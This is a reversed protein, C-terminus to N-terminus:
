PKNGQSLTCIAKTGVLETSFRRSEPYLYTIETVDWRSGIRVNKAKSKSCSLRQDVYRTGTKLDRLTVKSNSKSSLRVSEVEVALRREGYIERQECGALTALALLLVVPKLRM